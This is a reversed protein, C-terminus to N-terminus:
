PYVMDLEIGLENLIEKLEELQNSQSFLPRLNEKSTKFGVVGKDRTTINIRGRRGDIEIKKIDKVRIFDRHTRCLRDLYEIHIGSESIKFIGFSDLDKGFAIELFIVFFWLIATTLGYTVFSLRHGISIFFWIFLAILYVFRFSLIKKVASNREKEYTKTKIGYFKFIYKEDSIESM